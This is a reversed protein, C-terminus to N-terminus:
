ANTEKEWYMIYKKDPYKKNHAKVLKRAERFDIFSMDWVRELIQKGNMNTSDKGSWRHRVEATYFLTDKEAVTWSYLSRIFAAWNLKM